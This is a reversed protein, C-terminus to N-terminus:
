CAPGLCQHGLPQAWACPWPCLDPALVPDPAAHRHPMRDALRPPLASQYCPISPDCEQAWAHIGGRYQGVQTAAM